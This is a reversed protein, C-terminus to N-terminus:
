EEIKKRWKEKEKKLDKIEKEYQDANMGNGIYKEPNNEMDNLRDSTSDYAKYYGNLNAAKQRQKKAKPDSLWKNEAQRRTELESKDNLISPDNLLEAKRRKLMSIQNQIEKQKQSIELDKQFNSSSHKERIEATHRSIDSKSIAKTTGRVGRANKMEIGKGSNRLQRAQEGHFKRRESRNMNATPDFKIGNAKQLELMEDQRRLAAIQRDIEEITTADYNIEIEQYETNEVSDDYSNVSEPVATELFNSNEGRTLNVIDATGALVVGADGTKDLLGAENLGSTVDVVVDGVDSTIEGISTAINGVKELFSKKELNSEKPTESILTQPTDTAKAPLQLKLGVYCTTRNPNMEKLEQETIGYRQAILAFTEGRKVIHQKKEQANLLTPFSFIVTALYIILKRM